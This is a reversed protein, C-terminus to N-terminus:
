DRSGTPAPTRSWMAEVMQDHLEPIKDTRVVHVRRHLVTTHKFCAKLVRILCDGQLDGCASMPFYEFNAIETTDSSLAM